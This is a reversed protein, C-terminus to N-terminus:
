ERLIHQGFDESDGYFCELIIYCGNLKTRRCQRIVGSVVSPIGLTQEGARCLCLASSEGHRPSRSRRSKGPYGTNEEPVRLGIDM